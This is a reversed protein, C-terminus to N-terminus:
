LSSVFCNMWLSCDMVVRLWGSMFWADFGDYWGYLRLPGQGRGRAGGGGAGVRDRDFGGLSMDSGSCGVNGVM